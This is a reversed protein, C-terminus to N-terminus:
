RVRLPRIKGPARGAQAAEWAVLLEEQHLRVWDRVLRLQLPPGFGALVHGGRIAIEAVWEPRNKSKGFAHIHPPNHDRYFLAIVIGYFRALEPVVRILLAWVM